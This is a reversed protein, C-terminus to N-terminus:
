PFCKAEPSVAVSNSDMTCTRGLNRRRTEGLIAELGQKAGAVIKGHCVLRSTREKNSETM